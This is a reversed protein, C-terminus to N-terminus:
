ASGDENVMLGAVKLGAAQMAQALHGVKGRMLVATQNQDASFNVKVGSHDLALYATVGGLAPLELHLRTRWGPTEDEEQGGHAGDEEIKWEMEQGPWVQGQWIIQRTDLTELQQQVMPQALPHIPDHPVAPGTSSVTHVETQTLGPDRTLIAATEAIKMAVSPQGPTEVVNLVSPRVMDPALNFVPLRSQPEQLLSALTREGTVWQAQHSEYFLGSQSVATRLSAAFDQSAAPAGPLVPATRALATASANEQSGRQLLAGLFKATESLSVSSNPPLARALDQTLAFTLRPTASLFTLELKQGPESSRPLNMDLVQDEIQVQFRGNPLSAVIHAPLRQGPMWQPAEVPSQSVEILPPASTKVLLALQNQIDNHIM